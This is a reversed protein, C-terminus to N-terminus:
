RNPTLTVNAPPMGPMTQGQNAAARMEYKSPCKAVVERAEFLGSALLQGRVTVGIGERFTDPVIGRYHVPMARGNREVRFRFDSSGSQNEVTGAQVMGEVRLEPLGVFRAPAALVEDVYKSYVLAGQGPRFTSGVLGVVVLIVGVMVWPVLNRKPAIKGAGVPMEPRAEGEKADVWDQSDDHTRTPQPDTM